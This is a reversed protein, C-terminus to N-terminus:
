ACAPGQVLEEPARSLFWECLRRTLGSPLLKARNWGSVEIYMNGHLESIAARPLGSRLHLGDCNQSVVHQVKLLIFCRALVCASVAFADSWRLHCTRRAICWVAGSTLVASAAPVRPSCAKLAALHSRRSWLATSPRASQPWTGLGAEGPPLYLPALPFAGPPFSGSSCGPALRAFACSYTLVSAKEQTSTYGDSRFCDSPLRM